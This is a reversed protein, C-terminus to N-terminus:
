QVVVARGAEIRVADIGSPLPIPQSVDIGDPYRGSRTYAQVLEAVLTAPVPLSGVQASEIDISLTRRASRVIGVATVPLNGSLYRLPNLRGPSRQERVADLNVTASITLRGGAEMRLAPDTLGPPLRDAAQFRLYGAVARETIIVERPAGGRPTGANLLIRGLAAEFGAGDAATVPGGPQGPAAGPLMTAMLMMTLAIIRPVGPSYCPACAGGGQCEGKTQQVM